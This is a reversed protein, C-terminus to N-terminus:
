APAEASAAAQPVVPDPPYARETQRGRLTQWFNVAMLLTGALFILGAIFRLVYYPNLARMVDIFGYRVEGFDDIALWLLGQTIGGGWMAIVYLMVGALALWFHWTALRTSYLERGALRPVLFYFAGFTIMANWGLAGSHVHGITWETFHSMVNVSRIAMMPGEFTALGYFALSLV